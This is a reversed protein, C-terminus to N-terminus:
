TVAGFDLDFEKVVARVSAAVSGCRATCREAADMIKEETDKM